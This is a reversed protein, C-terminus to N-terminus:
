IRFSFFSSNGGRYYGSGSNSYSNSYSRSYLNNHYNGRSRSRSYHYPPPPPLYHKRSSSYYPYSNKNKYSDYRANNNLNDKQHTTINISEDKRISSNNNSTVSINVNTNPNPNQIVEGDDDDIDMDVVEWDENENTTYKSEIRIESNPDPGKFEKQLDSNDSKPPSSLLQIKSINLNNNNKNDTSNKDIDNNMSSIKLPSPSKVFDHFSFPKHSLYKYPQHTPSRESVNTLMEKLILSVDKIDSPPINIDNIWKKWDITDNQSSALFFAGAAILCYILSASTSSSPL